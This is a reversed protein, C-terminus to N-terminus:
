WCFVRYLGYLLRVTSENAIAAAIVEPKMKQVHSARDFKRWLDTTWMETMIIVLVVYAPTTLMEHDISSM